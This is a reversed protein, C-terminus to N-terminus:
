IGNTAPYQWGMDCIMNLTAVVKRFYLNFLRCGRPSFFGLSVSFMLQMFSFICSFARVVGGSSSVVLSVAPYALLLLKPRYCLSITYGGPKLQESHNLWTDVLCVCVQWVLKFSSWLISFYILQLIGYQGSGAVGSQFVKVCGVVGHTFLSISFHFCACVVM